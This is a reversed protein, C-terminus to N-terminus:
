MYKEVHQSPCVPCNYPKFGRHVYLHNRFKMKEKYTKGCSKCEYFLGEHVKKVHRNVGGIDRFKRDCLDCKFNKEHTHTKMHRALATGSVSTKGCLECAFRRLVSANSHIGMHLRINDYTRFKRECLYCTFQAPRHVKQHGRLHQNLKFTAPCLQCQFPRDTVHMFKHLKLQSENVARHGCADCVCIRRTLDHTKLHRKLKAVTEFEKGCTHCSSIIEKDAFCGRAQHCNLADECSFNLCCVGCQPGSGAVADGGKTGGSCEHEDYSRLFMYTKKCSFCPYLKKGADHDVAFHDRCGLFTPFELGCYPCFYSKKPNRHQTIHGRLSVESKFKEQCSLCQHSPEGKVHTALHTKLESALQYRGKACYICVNPRYDKHCEGIHKYYSSVDAQCLNCVRRLSGHRKGVTHQNRHKVFENHTKLVQDCHYCVFHAEVNAVSTGEPILKIKDSKSWETPDYLDDSSMSDVDDEIKPPAKENTHKETFSDRLYVTEIVADESDSVVERKVDVVATRDTLTKYSTRCLERFEYSLKLKYECTCCINITPEDDTSPSIGSCITYGEVFQVKIQSSIFAEETMNKFQGNETLCCFCINALKPEDM